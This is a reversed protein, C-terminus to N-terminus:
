TIKSERERERERERDRVIHGERILHCYVQFYSSDHFENNRNFCQLSVSHHVTSQDIWRAM